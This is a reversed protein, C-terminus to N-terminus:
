SESEMWRRLKALGRHARALVTGLPASVFDAIEQFSLDGYHRMLIVEREEVTLRAMCQQLRDSRVGVGADASSDPSAERSDVLWELPDGQEVDPSEFRPGTAKRRLRDRALNGAIRFLWAEFRGEERYDDVTRVVRLFVEQVLDEAEEGVAAMRRFFGHLRGAYADVLEDLAVPDLGRVRDVLERPADGSQTPPPKMGERIPKTRLKWGEWSPACAVLRPTETILGGRQRKPNPDPGREDRAIDSRAIPWSCRRRDPASTRPEAPTSALKGCVDHAWRM